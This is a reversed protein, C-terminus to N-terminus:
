RDSVVFWTSFQNPPMYGEVSSAYSDKILDTQFCAGQFNLTPFTATVSHIGLHSDKSTSVEADINLILADVNLTELASQSLNFSWSKFQFQPKVAVDPDAKWTVEAANLKSVMEATVM